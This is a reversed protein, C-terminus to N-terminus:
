LSEIAFGLDIATKGNAPHGPAIFLPVAYGWAALQIYQDYRLFSWFLSVGGHSNDLRFGRGPFITLKPNSVVSKMIQTMLITAHNLNLSDLSKLILKPQKLLQSDWSALLKVPSISLSTIINLIPLPRGNHAYVYQANIFISFLKLAQSCTISDFFNSSGFVPQELSLPQSVLPTLFSSDLKSM